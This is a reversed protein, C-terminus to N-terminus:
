TGAESLPEGQNFHTLLQQKFRFELAQALVHRGSGSPMRQAYETLAEIVVTLEDDTFNM